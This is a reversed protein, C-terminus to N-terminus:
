GRVVGRCDWVGWGGEQGWLGGGVGYVGGVGYSVGVLDYGGSPGEWTPFFTALFLMQPPPPFM